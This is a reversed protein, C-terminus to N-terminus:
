HNQSEINGRFLPHSLLRLYLLFEQKEKTELYVCVSRLSHAALTYSLHGKPTVAHDSEWMLSQSFQRGYNLQLICLECVAQYLNYFSFMLPYWLFQTLGLHVQKSCPWTNNWNSLRMSLLSFRIKKEVLLMLFKVSKSFLTNLRRKNLVHM